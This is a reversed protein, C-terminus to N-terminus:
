VTKIQASSVPANVLYGLWYFGSEDLQVRKTLKGAETKDSASLADYAAKVREYQRWLLSQRMETYYAGSGLLRDYQSSAAIWTEM